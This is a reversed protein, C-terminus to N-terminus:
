EMFQNDQIQLKKLNKAAAAGKFVIIAGKNKLHNGGINIEELTSGQFLLVEAISMAGAEDINCYTLELQNINKNQRLGEALYKMGESGIPNHNLKLITLNCKSQTNSPNVM